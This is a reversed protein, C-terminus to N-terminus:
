NQEAAQARARALYALVTGAAIGYEPDLQPDRQLVGQLVALQAEEDFDKAVGPRAEVQERFAVRFTNIRDELLQEDESRAAYVIQALLVLLTGEKLPQETVV